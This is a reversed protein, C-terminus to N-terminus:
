LRELGKNAMAIAVQTLIEEGILTHFFRYLKVTNVEERRLLTQRFKDRAEPEVRSLYFDLERNIKGEKAFLELSDVECHKCLCNRNFFPEFPTSLYSM